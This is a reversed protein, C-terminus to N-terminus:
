NNDDILEDYNKCSLVGSQKTEDEDLQDTEEIMHTDLKRNSKVINLSSSTADLFQNSSIAALLEISQNIKDDSKMIEEINTSNLSNLRIWKQIVWIWLHGFALKM